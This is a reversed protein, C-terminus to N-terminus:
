FEKQIIRDALEGLKNLIFGYLPYDNRTPDSEYVPKLATFEQFSIEGLDVIAKLPEIGGLIDLVKSDVAETLITQTTM